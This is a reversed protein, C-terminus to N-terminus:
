CRDDEPKTAPQEIRDNLKITHKSFGGFIANISETIEQKLATLKEYELDASNLYQEAQSIITNGGSAKLVRLRALLSNVMDAILKEGLEYRPAIAELTSRASILAAKVKDLNIFGNEPASNLALEADSLEALCQNIKLM